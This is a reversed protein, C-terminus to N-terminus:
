NGNSSEDVVDKAEFLVIYGTKTLDLLQVLFGELATSAYNSALIQHYAGRAEEETEYATIANATQGGKLIQINVVLYNM